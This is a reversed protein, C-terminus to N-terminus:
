VTARVILKGDRTQMHIIPVELDVPPFGGMESYGGWKLYANTKVLIKRVSTVKGVRFGTTKGGVIQEHTRNDPTLYTDPAANVVHDHSMCNHTAIGEALFTHADTEITVVEQRGAPMIEVIKLTQPKHLRKEVLNGAKEKLRIPQTMGVLHGADRTIIVQSCGDERIYKRYNINRANLYNEFYDMVLGEKQSFTMQRSRRAVTISGEGDLLGAIYGNAWDLKTQWVPFVQLLEDGITLTDARYWNYRGGLKAGDHRRKNLWLHDPTTLFSTGDELTLKLTNSFRNKVDTVRTHLVKRAQNFDPYESVGILEDGIGVNGLEDWMLNGRLVKTHPHLCYWNAHLYTGTREVKVAKASKTRAGGYGHTHYGWCVYPKGKCHNNNDGFLIKIMIGAARYPVGLAQAIDKSIDIGTENWIRNEHNGTVASMIKHRIPYLQEIMWDRQDQPTGVQRYIDGKSTRLSSECLDGNLVTYANPKEALEKITRKFHKKSFLPNGYHTDSIPLTDIENFEAPLRVEYFILEDQVFEDHEKIIASM